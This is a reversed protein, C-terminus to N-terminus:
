LTEKCKYLFDHCSLQEIEIYLDSIYNDIEEKFRAEILMYKPRYKNFDLGKLVNLEYGEVDLSFFDIENVECEDLISTLTRAPVKIEYPIVGKQIKGGKIVHNEEAQKSKLSGEVLSMLNSYKMTVYSESFDSSVLACNFVKAKPRELLCQQYLEPIGEVLIGKWGKFQEFYYTNSFTFGDNAGVEIFFGNRYNFYQELKRDIEFLSPRSYRSIGFSEAIKRRLMSLKNKVNLM